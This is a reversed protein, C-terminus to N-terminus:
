AASSIISVACDSSKYCWVLHMLASNIDTQALSDMRYSYVYFDDGCFYEKFIMKLKKGLFLAKLDNYISHSYGVYFKNRTKNYIVYCGEIDNDYDTQLFVEACLGNFKLEDLGFIETLESQTINIVTEYIRPQSVSAYTLTVNMSFEVSKFLFNQEFLMAEIECFKRYSIIDSDYRGSNSYNNFIRFAARAYANAKENYDYIAKVARFVTNHSRLKDAFANKDDKFLNYESAFKCTMTYCSLYDTLKIIDATYQMVSEYHENLRKLLLLRQSKREVYRILQKKTYLYRKLKLGM